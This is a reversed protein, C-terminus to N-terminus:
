SEVVLPSQILHDIYKDQFLVRWKLDISLNKFFSQTKFPSGDLVSFSPNERLLNKPHILKVLFIYYKLKIYTIIRAYIKMFVFWLEVIEIEELTSWRSSEAASSSSQFVSSNPGQVCLSYLLCTKSIQNMKKCHNLSTTVNFKESM